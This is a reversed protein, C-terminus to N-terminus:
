PNVFPGQESAGADSVRVLILNQELADGEPTTFFHYGLSGKLDPDYSFSFIAM